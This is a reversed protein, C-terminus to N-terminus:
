RKKEHRDNKELLSRVIDFQMQVVGLLFLELLLLSLQPSFMM